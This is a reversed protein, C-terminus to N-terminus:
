GHMVSCVMDFLNKRCTCHSAKAKGLIQGFMGIIGEDDCHCKYCENCCGYESTQWCENDVEWCLQGSYGNKKVLNRMAPHESYSSAIAAMFVLLLVGFYKM